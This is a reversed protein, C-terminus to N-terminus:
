SIEEVFISAPQGGTFSTTAGPALASAIPRCSWPRPSTRWGSTNRRSARWRLSEPCSLAPSYASEPGSDTSPIRSASARPSTTRRSRVTGSPRLRSSIAASTTASPSSRVAKRSIARSGSGM